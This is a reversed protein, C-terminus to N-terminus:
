GGTSLVLLLLMMMMTKLFNRPENRRLLFCSVFSTCSGVLSTTLKQNKKEGPPWCDHCFRRSRRSHRQSCRQVKGEDIARRYEARGM